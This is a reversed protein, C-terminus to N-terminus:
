GRSICRAPAGMWVEGDAINMERLPLSLPLMTANQGVSGLILGATPHLVANGMVSTTETTIRGRAARHCIAYSSRDLIAGPRIRLNDADGPEMCITFIQSYFFSVSAGMTYYYLNLIFLGNFLPFISNDSVVAHLSQLFVLVVGQTSAMDFSGPTSRGQVLWKFAWMMAWLYVVLYVIGYLVAIMIRLIYHMNYIALSRLSELGVVAGGGLVLLSVVFYMVHVFLMWATFQLECSYPVETANKPLPRLNSGYENKKFSESSYELNSVLQQGSSDVATTHHMAINTEAVVVCASLGKSNQEAECDKVKTNLKHKELRKSMSGDCCVVDLSKGVVPAQVFPNGIATKSEAVVTGESLRSFAAVTASKRVKVKTELRSQLLLQAHDEILIPRPQDNSGWWPSETTGRLWSWLTPGLEPALRCNVLLCGRGVEVRHASSADCLIPFFLVSGSGIRMGFLKYWYRVAFTKQLYVFFAKFTVMSIKDTLYPSLFSWKLLVSVFLLVVGVLQYGVLYSVVVYISNASWVSSSQYENVNPLVFNVGTVALASVVLFLFPIALKTITWPRYEINAMQMTRNTLLIGSKDSSKNVPNGEWVGSGLETFPPLYSCAQVQCDDKLLVPAQAVSRPGLLCRKGVVVKNFLVGAPTFFHPFLSGKITTGQNITVLDWDRFFCEINASPHVKAGLLVYMLNLYPTDVVFRGCTHEWVGFLRQIVMWRMYGNSWLRYYLQPEARQRGLLMWKAAICVVTYTVMWLAVAITSIPGMRGNIVWIWSASPTSDWLENTLVASPITSVLIASFLLFIVILQRVLICLTTFVGGKKFAIPDTTVNFEPLNFTKCMEDNSARSYEDLLEQATLEMAHEFPISIDLTQAKAVIQSLALSDIGNESLTNEWREVGAKTLMEKLSTAGLMDCVVDRGGQESPPTHQLLTLKGDVWLKACQRRQIKGSTTKPMTRAKVLVVEGIPVQVNTVVLNRIDKALRQLVVDRVHESRVECILVAHQQSSGTTADIPQFAVSSGPRLVPFGDEACKEIDTPSYNKGNIIILDKIRSTLYIDTGHIYAMDGTRQFHKGPVSDLTALFTEETAEPKNWYGQAVSPSNSWIEGEEGDIAEVFRGNKEVVIRVDINMSQSTPLHGASVKNSHTNQGFFTMVLSTEAQGYSNYFNDKGTNWAERVVSPTREEVPEGGCSFVGVHSLDVTLGEEKTRKCALLYAFNPCIMVGKPNGTSGSTYQIFALDSTKRKRDIRDWCSNKTNDSAGEGGTANTANNYDDTSVWTLGTPWKKGTVKSVKVIKKYTKTTLAIRAGSDQVFHAFKPIDTNLKEPNPPYVSVVICGIRLCAMFAVVFDIGPPYVIMARDGENIGHKLTLRRAVAGSYDWLQGRTFSKQIDGHRDLFALSLSNPSAEALRRVRDLFLEDDYEPYMRNKAVQSEDRVEDDHANDEVPLCDSVLTSQSLAM